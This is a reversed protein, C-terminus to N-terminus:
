TVIGSKGPMPKSPLDSRYATICASDAQNGAVATGNAARAPVATGCQNLGDRRM